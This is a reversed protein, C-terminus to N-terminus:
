ALRAVFGVVSIHKLVNKKTNRHVVRYNKVTIYTLHKLLYGMELWEDAKNNNKMNYHYCISALFIQCRQAM